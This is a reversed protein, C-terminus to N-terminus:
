VCKSESPRCTRSYENLDITNARSATFTNEAWAPLTNQRENLELYHICSYIFIVFRSRYLIFICNRTDTHEKNACFSSPGNNVITAGVYPSIWGWIGRLNLNAGMRPRHLRMHLALCWITSDPVGKIESWPFLSAYIHVATLCAGCAHERCCESVCVSYSLAFSHVKRKSATVLIGFPFTSLLLIFNASLGRCVTFM